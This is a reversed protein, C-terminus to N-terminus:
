LEGNLLQDVQTKTYILLVIFGAKRLANHERIQHEAARGLPAKTEVWFPKGKFLGRVKILYDPAGRRQEFCVKRIYGNRAKVEKVLYAAVGSTGTERM